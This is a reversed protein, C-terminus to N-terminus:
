FQVIKWLGNDNRAFYIHYGRVRGEEKRRLLYHAAGDRIWIPDVTQLGEAFEPLVDRIATIAQRYKERSSTGAFFRLAGEIDRAGLADRFGSWVKKLLANMTAFSQPAVAAMSTVM